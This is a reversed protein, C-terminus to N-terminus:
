VQKDYVTHLRQVSGFVAHQGVHYLHATEYAHRGHRPALYGDLVHRAAIQAYYKVTEATEADIHLFILVVDYHRRVFM